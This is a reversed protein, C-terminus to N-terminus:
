DGISRGIVYLTQGTVRKLTCGRGLLTMRSGSRTGHLLVIARTAVHRFDFHGIAQCDEVVM